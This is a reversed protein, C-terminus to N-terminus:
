PGGTKIEAKQEYSKREREIARVVSVVPVEFSTSFWHDTAIGLTKMFKRRNKM